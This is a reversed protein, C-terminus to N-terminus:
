VLALAPPWVASPLEVECRGSLRKTGGGLRFICSAPPFCITFLPTDTGPLSVGSGTQKDQYFFTGQQVAPWKQSLIVLCKKKEESYFVTIACTSKRLFIIDYKPLTSTSCCISLHTWRQLQHLIASFSTDKILTNLFSM